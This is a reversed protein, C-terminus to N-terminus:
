EHWRELPCWNPPVDDPDNRIQKPGRLNPYTCYYVSKTGAVFDAIHQCQYCHEVIECRPGQYKM